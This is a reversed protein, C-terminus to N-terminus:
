SNNSNPKIYYELQLCVQALSVSSNRLGEKDDKDDDALNTFRFEMCGIQWLHSASTVRIDSDLKM